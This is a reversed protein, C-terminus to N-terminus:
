GAAARALAAIRPELEAVTQWKEGILEDQVIGGRLALEAMPCVAVGYVSGVGGDRDYAIPITWGHSRIEAATDARSGNIAVAAFRLSPYRRSLKQLSDVQTECAGSGIVFLSLM